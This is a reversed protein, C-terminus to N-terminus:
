QTSRMPVRTDLVYVHSYKVSRDFLRTGCRASLDFNLDNEPSSMLNMLCTMVFHLIVKCNTICNEETLLLFFNDARYNLRFLRKGKM